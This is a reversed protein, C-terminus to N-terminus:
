ELTMEPNMTTEIESIATLKDTLPDELSTASQRGNLHM